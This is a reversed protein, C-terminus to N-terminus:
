NLFGIVEDSNSGAQLMTGGAVANGRTGMILIVLYFYILLKNNYIM